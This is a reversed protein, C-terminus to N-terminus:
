KSSADAHSRMPMDGAPVSSKTPGAATIIYARENSSLIPMSASIVCM